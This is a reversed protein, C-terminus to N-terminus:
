ERLTLSDIAVATHMISENSPVLGGFIFGNAKDVARSLTTLSEVDEIALTHFGVLQYDELLDCLVANFKDFKEASKGRPPGKQAADELLYQLNPLTTYYELPFPLRDYSRLLDMKSLINLHPLNMSLMINLSLLLASIFRSSDTCYNADILNM